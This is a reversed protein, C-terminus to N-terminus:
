AEASGMVVEHIFHLKEVAKDSLAFPYADPMGMSRNLSNLVQTLPFWAELLKEFGPERRPPAAPMVTPKEAPDPKITLGFATATEVLDIIHFYHAWTEAWDEWPHMTAYASIFNQQWDAPPGENYHRKLAASYDMRDDGFLQRCRDLWRSRDILRDWFYHAVEHRLHGLLTRYPEHLNVRRREREPDDAEVINITILGNLHGTPAPPGGPIDAIFKFRLAPRNEGPVASLPLRLRNLAYVLRRKAMELKHWRWLNGSVSLDPIM